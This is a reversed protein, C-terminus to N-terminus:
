ASLELLAPEMTKEGLTHTHTYQSFFCILIKLLNLNTSYIFSLFFPQRWLLFVSKMFLYTKSQCIKIKFKSLLTETEM